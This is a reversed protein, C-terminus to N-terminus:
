YHLCCMIFYCTVVLSLYSIIVLCLSMTVKYTLQKTETNALKALRILKAALHV